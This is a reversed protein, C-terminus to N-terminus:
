VRWLGWLVIHKISKASMKSHEIFFVFLTLSYCHYVADNESFALIFDNFFFFDMFDCASVTWTSHLEIRILIVVTVIKETSWICHYHSMNSVFYQCWPWYQILMPEVWSKLSRFHHQCLPCLDKENVFFVAKNLAAEVYKWLVKWLGLCSTFQTLYTASVLEFSFCSM